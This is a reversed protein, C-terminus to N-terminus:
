PKMSRDVVRLADGDLIVDDREALREDVGFAYCVMLDPTNRRDELGTGTTAVLQTDDHNHLTLFPSLTKTGMRAILREVSSQPSSANSNRHANGPEGTVCVSFSWLGSRQSDGGSFICAIGDTHPLMNVNRAPGCAQM